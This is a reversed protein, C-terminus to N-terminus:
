VANTEVLGYAQLYKAAITAGSFNKRAFACIMDRRDSMMENMLEDINPLENEFDVARGLYHEQQIYACAAGVYKNVIVPLGCAWYEVVKTGLRTDSDLQKPLAHVGIDAVSLWEGVKGPAPKVIALRSSQLSIRNVVNLIKDKPEDSLILLKSNNCSMAFSFLEVLAGVNIGSLGLSGSYVFVVENGWGLEERYKKRLTKDVNFFSENASIPIVGIRPNLYHDNFYKKMGDSVVSVFRSNEVVAEENKLWYQSARSGPILNGASQNEQIWLSRPDFLLSKVGNRQLAMSTWYGRAHWVDVNVFLNVFFSCIRLLSVLVESMLPSNVAGRLPPLLPVYTISVNTDVLLDRYKRLAAKHDRIKWPRNIAVVRVAMSSELNSISKALDLVQTRFLGSTIDEIVLFVIKMSIRNDTEYGRSCDTVM